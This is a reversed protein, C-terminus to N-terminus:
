LHLSLQVGSLLKVAVRNWIQGGAMALVSDGQMRAEMVLVFLPDRNKITMMSGM